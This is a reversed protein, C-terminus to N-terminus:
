ETIGENMKKRYADLQDEYFQQQKTSAEKAKHALAMVSQLALRLRVIEEDKSDSGLAEKQPSSHLSSSMKVSNRRESSMLQNEEGFTGGEEDNSTYINGMELSGEHAGSGRPAKANLSRRDTSTPAPPPLSALTDVSTKM